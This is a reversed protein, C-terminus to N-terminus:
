RCELFCTLTICSLFKLKKWRHVVQCKILIASALVAVICWWGHLLLLWSSRSLCVSLMQPAFHTQVSACALYFLRQLTSDPRCCMCVKGANISQQLFPRMFQKGAVARFIGYEVRGPEGLRSYEGFQM